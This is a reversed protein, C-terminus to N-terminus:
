TAGAADDLLPMGLELTDAAQETDPDWYPRRLLLSAASHV